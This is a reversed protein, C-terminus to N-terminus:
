KQLIEMIGDKMELIRKGDNGIFDFKYRSTTFAMGFVEKENYPNVIRSRDSLVVQYVIVGEKKEVGFAEIDNQTLTNLCNYASDFDATINLLINQTTPESLDITRLFQKAPPNLPKSSLNKALQRFEAMGREKFIKYKILKYDTTKLASTFNISAKQYEERSSNILGLFYLIIGDNPKLELAKQLDIMAKNINGLYYNAIGKGRIALFNNPNMEIATDLDSIAENYNGHCFHISGRELWYSDKPKDSLKIAMTIIEIGHSQRLRSMVYGMGWLSEESESILSSSKYDQLANEYLGDNVYSMGRHMYAEKYDYKFNIAKSLFDRRLDENSANQAKTFWFLASDQAGLQATWLSDPNFAKQLKVRPKDRRTPRNIKWPEKRKTTDSSADLEDKNQGQNNIQASTIESREEPEHKSKWSMWVAIGVLILFTPIYFPAYRSLHNSLYSYKSIPNNSLYNNIEGSLNEFQEADFTDKQNKKYELLANLEYLAKQKAVSNKTSLALGVLLALSQLIRDKEKQSFDSSYKILLTYYGFCTAIDKESYLSNEKEEIQTAIYLKDLYEFSLFLDDIFNEYKLLEHKRGTIKEEKFIEFIDQITGIHINTNNEAWGFFQNHLEPMKKERDLIHDKLKKRSYSSGNVIVTAPTGPVFRVKLVERIYVAYAAYLVKELRATDAKRAKVPKGGITIVDM